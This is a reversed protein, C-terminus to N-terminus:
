KLSLLTKDTNSGLLSIATPVTGYFNVGYLNAMQMRVSGLKALRLSGKFLNIGSMDAGDLNAKNFSVEKASARLLSANDLQARSLDAKDLRAESLVARSLVAGGWKAKQLNACRFNAESFQSTANARSASLNAGAFSAQQAKVKFFEAKEASAGAFDAQQLGAGNFRAGTFRSQTFNGGSLDCGEFSAKDAVCNKAQVGVMRSGAFVTGSLTAEGLEAGSFDSGSFDAKSADSARLRSGVFKAGDASAGTLCAGELNATSFDAKQCLADAFKTGKLCCGKFQTGGLLTGTFDAGALDLNSLDLGSLECAAMSEGAAHRAIVGERDLRAPPSPKQEPPPVAAATDPATAKPASAAAAVAPVVPMLTALQAFIKDLGGPLSPAAFGEAMKALEPHDVLMAQLQAESLGSQKVLAQTEQEVQKMLQQLEALGGIPEEVTAPALKELEASNLGHKAMLQKAQGEVEGILKEIDALSMPAEDVVPKLFQKELEAQNLGHQAMLTKIQAEVDALAKEVEKIEPSDSLSVAPVTVAAVAPAVPAPAAKSPAPAAEPPPMKAPKARSIKEQFLQWYHAVPLPTQDISELEIFVYAVDDGDEDAVQAVARFLILGCDQEPFLWVTEAHAPVEVFGTGAASGSRYIFCRARLGPLATDVRPFQPHMNLLVIKEDGRLFGSLRQDVPAAQFFDPSTDLPLHPWRTEKWRQDFRGLLRLKAPADPALAWFGAPPVSDGRHILPQDPTEINPLPWSARVGAAPDAPNEAFGKGLPNDAFGEGGFANEPTIPMSSFPKAASIGTLLDFQRDGFVALKKSVEGVSIDVLLPQSTLAPPKYASGYAFFESRAKPLGSDLLTNGMALKVLPWVAPLPTVREAEKVALPFVRLVGLSLRSFADPKFLRFLVDVLDPKLIKM